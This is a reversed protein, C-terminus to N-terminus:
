FFIFMSGNPLVITRDTKNIQCLDEIKFFRLQEVMLQWVSERVNTGYRRCILIRRNPDNIAKIILKQSIFHSKGSGASGKYVEYRHSYDFLLPYFKDNFIRKNIQLKLPEAM